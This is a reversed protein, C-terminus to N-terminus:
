LMELYLLWLINPSTPPHPFHYPSNLLSLGSGGVPTRTANFLTDAQYATMPLLKTFEQISTHPYVPYASTLLEPPASSKAWQSMWLHPGSDIGSCTANKFSLPQMQLLVATLRHPLLDKRCWSPLTPHLGSVHFKCGQLVDNIPFIVQCKNLAQRNEKCANDKIQM